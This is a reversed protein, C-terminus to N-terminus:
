NKQDTVDLHLDTLFKISLIRRQILSIMTPDNRLNTCIFENGKMTIQSLLNLKNLPFNKYANILDIFYIVSFVYDMVDNELLGFLKDLNKIIEQCVQFGTEKDFCTLYKCRKIQIAINKNIPIKKYIKKAYYAKV